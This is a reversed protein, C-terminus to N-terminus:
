RSSIKLAWSASAISSTQQLFHIFTPHRGLLNTVGKPIVSCLGYALVRFEHQSIRPITPLTTQNFKISCIQSLKWLKAVLTQLTLMLPINKADYLAVLRELAKNWSSIYNQVSTELYIM